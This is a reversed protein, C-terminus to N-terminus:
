GKTHRDCGAHTIAIFIAGPWGVMDDQAVRLVQAPDGEVMGVSPAMKMGKHPRRLAMTIGFAAGAFCPLRM